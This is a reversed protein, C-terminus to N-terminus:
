NLIKTCCSKVLIQYWISTGSESLLNKIGSEPALIQYSKQVLNKSVLNKYWIRSGLIQYWIRKGSDKFQIRAGRNQISIQGLDPPRPTQRVHPTVNGQKETVGINGVTLPLTQRATQWYHGLTVMTHKHNHQGVWQRDSVEVAHFSRLSDPM